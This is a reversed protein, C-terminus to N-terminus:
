FTISLKEINRKIAKLLINTIVFTIGFISEFVNIIFIIKDVKFLRFEDVKDKYGIISIIVM